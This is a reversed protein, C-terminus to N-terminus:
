NHVRHWCEDLVTNALRVVHFTASVQVADPLMTDFVAWQARSLDLTAWEYGVCWDDSRAELWRCPEGSDRGAVVDLLHGCRVDVIQTSWCQVRFRSERCFLTEDPGLATVVGFQNPDDIM